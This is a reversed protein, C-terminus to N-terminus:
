NVCITEEYVSERELDYTTKQSYVRDITRLVRTPDYTVQMRLIECLSPYYELKFHRMQKIKFNKSEILIINVMNNSSSLWSEIMYANHVTMNLSFDHIGRTTRVVFFPVNDEVYMSIKIPEHRFAYLERKTINNFAIIFSFSSDDVHIICNDKKYLFKRYCDLPFKQNKRINM